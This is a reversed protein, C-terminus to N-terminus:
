TYAHVATRAIVLAQCLSAVTRRGIAILRAQRDLLRVRLHRRLVPLRLHRHLVLLRLHRRPRRLVPLHRRPRRLVQLRHHVLPRHRRVQYM